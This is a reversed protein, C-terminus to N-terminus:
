FQKNKAIELYSKMFWEKLDEVKENLSSNEDRTKQLIKDTLIRMQDNTQLLKLEANNFGTDIEMSINFRDEYSKDVSSKIEIEVEKDIAYLYLPNYFIDKIFSLINVIIHKGPQWNSFKSKNISIKIIYKVELDLLGTEADIRPHIIKNMFFVKPPRSPYDDPIKLKFKFM